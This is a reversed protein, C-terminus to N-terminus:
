FNSELFSEITDILFGHKKLLYATVGIGRIKKFSSNTTFVGCSPSGDKLIIRKVNLFRAFDLTLLAGKRFSQSIDKGVELVVPINEEWFGCGDKKEITAQERPVSLGGLLEPCVPILIYRKEIGTLLTDFSDKGDFRTKLGLLCSSILVREMM